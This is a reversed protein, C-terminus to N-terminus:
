PNVPSEFVFVLETPTKRELQMTEVLQWGEEAYDNIVSEISREKNAAYDSVETIRVSEKTYVYRQESM